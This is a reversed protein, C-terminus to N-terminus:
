WLPLLKERPIGTSYGIKTIREASNDILVVMDFSGPPLGELETWDKCYRNFAISLDREQIVSSAFEQIIVPGVFVIRSQGKKEISSLKQAFREKLSHYEELKKTLFGAALRSATRAGKPTLLYTSRGKRGNGRVSAIRVLGSGVLSKLIHNVHGVSMKALDAIQRQTSIEETDLADLIKFTKESFEM